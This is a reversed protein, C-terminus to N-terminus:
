AIYSTAMVPAIAKALWVCAYFPLAPHAAMIHASKRWSSATALCSPSAYTIYQPEMKDSHLLHRLWGSARPILLTSSPAILSFFCRFTDSLITGSLEPSIQHPRTETFKYSDQPRNM